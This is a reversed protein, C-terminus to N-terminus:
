NLNNFFVFTRIRKVLRRSSNTYGICCPWEHKLYCMCAIITVQSVMTYKPIFTRPMLWHLFNDVHKKILFSKSSVLSRMQFCLEV